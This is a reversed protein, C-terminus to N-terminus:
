TMQSRRKRRRKTAIKKDFGRISAVLTESQPIIGALEADKANAEQTQALSEVQPELSKITDQAKKLEAEAESLSQAATAKRNEAEAKVSTANKLDQDLKRIENWLAENEAIFQETATKEKEAIAKNDGASKLDSAM